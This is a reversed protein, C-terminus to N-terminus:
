QGTIDSITKFSVNLRRIAEDTINIRNDSLLLSRQDLLVVASYDTMIQKLIPAAKIFFQRRLGEMERLIDQGKEDQSARAAVVRADFSDAMARFEDKSLLARQETLRKEEAEFAADIERSEAQLEARRANERVVIERGVNSETFLREQIIVLIPSSPSGLSQALAMGPVGLALLALLLLRMARSVPRLPFESTKKWM